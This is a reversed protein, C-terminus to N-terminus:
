KYFKNKRLNLYYKKGTQSIECTGSTISLLNRYIDEDRIRASVYNLRKVIENRLKNKINQFMELKSLDNDFISPINGSFSIFLKHILYVM